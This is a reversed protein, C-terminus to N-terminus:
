ALRDFTLRTHASAPRSTSSASDTGSKRKALNRAKHNAAVFPLKGTLLQYFTVGLSYFDSRYDVARNMRGTQEPSIYALGSEFLASSEQVTISLDAHEDASGFGFLRFQRSERNLVIHAPLYRQSHDASRSRLGSNLTSTNM